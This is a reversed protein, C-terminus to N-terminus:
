APSQIAWAFIHVWPLTQNPTHQEPCPDSLVSLVRSWTVSCSIFFTSFHETCTIRMSTYLQYHRSLLHSQAQIASSLGPIIQHPLPPSRLKVTRHQLNFALLSFLQASILHTIIGPGITWIIGQVVSSTASTLKAQQCEQFMNLFCQFKMLILM